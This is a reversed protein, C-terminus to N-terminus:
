VRPPKFRLGRPLFHGGASFTKIESRSVHFQRVPPSVILIILQSLHLPPPPAALPLPKHALIAGSALPCKELLTLTTALMNAKLMNLCVCHYGLM